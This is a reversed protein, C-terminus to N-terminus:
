RDYAHQQPFYRRSIEYRVPHRWLLECLVMKPRVAHFLALTQELDRLDTGLSLSTRSFIRGSQELRRCVHKGLFGTAGTVLIM